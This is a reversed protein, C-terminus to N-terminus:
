GRADEARFELEVTGFEDRYQEPPPRLPDAARIAREVSADYSADGSSQITKVNIIKGEETVNFRVVSRLSRDAGAWAWAAKIRSEMRNRYMVYEIGRVTGGVGAGPGVSAVTSGSGGIGSATRAADMARRQVAAAIRREIEDEEATKASSGANAAEARRRVAAAIQDDRQADKNEAKAEATAKQKEAVRSTAKQVPEAPRPRESKKKKEKVVPAVSRDEEVDAKKAPKENKQPPLKEPEIAKAAEPPEVPPPKTEPEAAKAPAPPEKAPLSRARAPIPPAPVAPAAAKPRAAAGPFHTGGVASPAILEVSYSEPPRSMGEFRSPTLALFALAAGHALGSAGIAWILGGDGNSRPSM